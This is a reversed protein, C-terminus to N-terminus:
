QRGALHALSFGHLLAFQSDYFWGRRGDGDAFPAVSLKLTGVKLCLEVGVFALRYVAALIGEPDHAFRGFVLLRNRM